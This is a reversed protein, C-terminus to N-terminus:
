TEWLKALPVALLREDRLPFVGRGAYLLVGSEFDDGCRDALRVLGREDGPSIAAAAKVEIGWTRRGQTAVIDVEM